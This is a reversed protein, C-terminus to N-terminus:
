WPQLQSTVNSTKQTSMRGAWLQSHGFPQVLGLIWSMKMKNGDTVKQRKKALTCKVRLMTGLQSKTVGGSSVLSWGTTSMKWGNFSPITSVLHTFNLRIMQTKTPLPMKRWNIWRWLGNHLCVHSLWLGQVSQTVLQTPWRRLRLLPM